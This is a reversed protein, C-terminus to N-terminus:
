LRNVTDIFNMYPEGTEMRSVLIKKFVDFADLVGVTEKTKPCKLEYSTRLEVAKM